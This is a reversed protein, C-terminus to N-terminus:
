ASPRRLCRWSSRGAAYYVAPLAAIAANQTWIAAVLAAAAVLAIEIWRRNM